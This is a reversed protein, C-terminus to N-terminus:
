CIVLTLSKWSDFCLRFTWKEALYLFCAVSALHLPFIPCHVHSSIEGRCRLGELREEREPTVKRCTASVLLTSKLGRINMMITEPSPDCGTDRFTLNLCADDILCNFCCIWYQFASLVYKSLIVVNPLPVCIGYGRLGDEETIINVLDKKVKCIELLTRVNIKIQVLCHVQFWKSCHDLTLNIKSSQLYRADKPGQSSHFIRNSESTSAVSM